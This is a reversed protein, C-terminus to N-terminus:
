ARPPPIEPQPGLETFTLELDPWDAEVPMPRVLKVSEPPGIFKGFAATDIPENPDERESCSLSLGSTPPATCCCRGEPNECGCPCIISAVEDDPFALPVSSMFVATAVSIVAANRWRRAGHGKKLRPEWSDVQLLRQM